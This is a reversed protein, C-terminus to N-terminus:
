AIELPSLSCVRLVYRQLLSAARLTMRQIVLEDDSVLMDLVDQTSQIDTIM